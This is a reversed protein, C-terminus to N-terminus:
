IAMLLFTMYQSYFQLLMNVFLMRGLELRVNVNDEVIAGGKNLQVDVVYSVGKKM